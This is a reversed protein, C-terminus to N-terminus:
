GAEGNGDDEHLDERRRGKLLVTSVSEAEEEDEGEEGFEEEDAGVAFFFAEAGGGGVVVGRAVGLAPEETTQEFAFLFFGELIFVVHQGAMCCRTLEATAIRIALAVDPGIGIPM